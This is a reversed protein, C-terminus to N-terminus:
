ICIGNLCKWWKLELFSLLYGTSPEWFHIQGNLSTVALQKGDPRFAIALVDSPHHLVETPVRKAYVDWLRVTRDWSGSALLTSTPSFTLASIPGEHGTLVDLLRGTQVSWLHIEYPDMTGACVVEGSSDVAVCTYQASQPPLFTRFNRYRVLDFARVSGDLSSSFVSAGQPSFMVDTIPATHDGFTVFCFGSTTNWLKVKGYDDGTAIIQGDPSYTLCNMDHFHGINGLFLFFCYLYFYLYLCTLPLPIPYSLPKGQQKLIYTESQWEWVLLQGQRAVGFALWDGTPNIAVTSIRSQSISLSHLNNILFEGTEDQNVDYLGFVGNTFGLILLQNAKHLAACRIKANDQQFYHKKKISWTGYALSQQEQQLPQQPQEDGEQETDYVTPTWGWIFM